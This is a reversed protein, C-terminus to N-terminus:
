ELPDKFNGYEKILFRYEKIWQNLNVWAEQYPKHAAINPNIVKPASPDNAFLKKYAEDTQNTISYNPYTKVAWLAGYRLDEELDKEPYQKSWEDEMYLGIQKYLAKYLQGIPTKEFAELEINFDKYSDFNKRQPIDYGCKGGSYYQILNRAWTRYIIDNPLNAIYHPAPTIDKGVQSWYEVPSILKEPDTYEEGFVYKAPLRGAFSKGIGWSSCTSSIWLDEISPNNPTEDNNVLYLGYFDGLNPKFIVQGDKPADGKPKPLNLDDIDPIDPQEPPEPLPGLDEDDVNPLNPNPIWDVPKGPLKPGDEPKPSQKQTTPSAKTQSSILLAAGLAAILTIPKLAM